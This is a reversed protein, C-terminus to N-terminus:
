PACPNERGGLSFFFAEFPVLDELAQARNVLCTLLVGKLKLLCGGAGALPHFQLGGIFSVGEALHFRKLPPDWLHNDM